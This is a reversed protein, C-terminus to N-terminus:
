FLEQVTEYLGTIGFGFTGVFKLQTSLDDLTGQFTNKKEIQEILYQM